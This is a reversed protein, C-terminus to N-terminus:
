LQFCLNIRPTIHPCSNVGLHGYIPKFFYRHPEHTYVEKNMLHVTYIENKPYLKM